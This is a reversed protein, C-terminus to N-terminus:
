RVFMPIAASQYDKCSYCTFFTVYEGVAGHKHAFFITNTALDVKTHYVECKIGHDM